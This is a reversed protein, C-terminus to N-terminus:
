KRRVSQMAAADAREQEGQIVEVADFWRARWQTSDPGGMVAGSGEHVRKGRAFEAIWRLSERTIRAVPCERSEVDVEYETREEGDGLEYM